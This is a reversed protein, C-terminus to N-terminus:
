EAAAEDAAVEGEEETEEEEEVKANVVHAVLTDAATHVNFTDGLQAQVDAVTIADGLNLASVDVAIEEVLNKPLCEVDLAHVLCELVGGTKTGAAEGKLVVPITTHIMHGAVVKLFDAHKPAGSIEDRQIENLLATVKEGAVDLEVVLHESVHHNLMYAFERADLSISENYDEGYVVAPTKGARRLRRAVSSGGAERKEAKLLIEYSM